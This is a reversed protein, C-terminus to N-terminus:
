VTHTGFPKSKRSLCKITPELVTYSCLRRAKAMMQIFFILAMSRPLLCIFDVGLKTPKMIGVYHRYTLLSKSKIIFETAVLSVRLLVNGRGATWRTKKDAEERARGMAGPNDPGYGELLNIVGWVSLGAGLAVVLTQLTSVASAFFEM